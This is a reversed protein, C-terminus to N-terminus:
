DFSVDELNLVEMHFTHETSTQLREIQRYNDPNILLILTFDGSNWQISYITSGFILVKDWLQDFRINSYQIKLKMARELPLVARILRIAELAQQQDNMNPKVSYHVDKMAKEIVTISYPRRTEPNVCQGAVITAIDKLPAYLQASRVEDSIQLEGKVLIHKCIDTLNDTNFVKQLDEKKAVQGESVNTFVSHTQLVKDIDKEIGNRWSIVKNRYCAIEFRKGNIKMRVVAVNTLRIQNTPTFIKSM